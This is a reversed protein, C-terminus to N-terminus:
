TQNSAYERYLEKFERDWCGLVLLKLDNFFLLFTLIETNEMVFNGITQVTLKRVKKDKLDKACALIM